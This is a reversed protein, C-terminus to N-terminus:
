KYDSEIILGDPYLTRLIRMWYFERKTSDSAQTKFTLWVEVYKLFGQHDSQLFHSKLFKQKVNGMNGSKAERVDSKYNNWRSRFHDTNNGVYQKGCIKCSLLCILCKDNCDFSTM